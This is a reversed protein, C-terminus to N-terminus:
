DTCEILLVLKHVSRELISGRRSGVCVKVTRVLGDSGTSVEVVRALPWQSRPTNIDKVIVIDGIKMNRRPNHWKQRLSIQNLYETKWRSWFQELLYQVRRWRRKLYLDSQEFNGPPPYPINAKATLIHNPTLPEIATPNDIESVSLPRSNVIAMVEYFVTRLSSDDLNKPCDMLIANLIDRVTRIQREWVGGTHSADPPNMQFETLREALYNSVKDKNVASKFENMAGVFNSGHDCRIQKVFGRISIFCRLGNIFADTSLDDLMEIHIARSCMCTFILGYRKLEVRRQKVTFPGFVDMGCYYFPPSPEVRSNPLNAMKQCESPRRLKRCTVCKRIFNGVLKSGGIIWYGLSRLKNMTFGRGQHKMESHAYSLILNTVHHNKPLIIPHKYQDSENANSLRGGIRLLGDKMFPDLSYLLHSKPLPLNALVLSRADGFIKIQLLEIIRFEAKRREEATPVHIGTEGNALRMLRAVVSVAKTWSSFRTLDIEFPVSTETHCSRVCKVEPDEPALETNCEDFSLTHQWLFSPGRLWSSDRLENVHLGRSAHDAPNAASEVYHWQAPESVDRISKVRNAVFVHFRRCENNIYALVVRSDTWFHESTVAIGLEKKLLVSMKASLVAANLELRPITLTRKPAVRAKGILFSCHVDAGSVIRLYSCQGCGSSSADSFHHIEICTCDLIPSPLLCRGISFLKLDPLCDIWKEWEEKIETPAVDDWNMGRQCMDQLIRKGIFTFPALFGLPDFISAVISLIVRRSSAVTDPVDVRFCFADEQTNWSVGLAHSMPLSDTKFNFDKMETARESPPISEIVDISNSIFKHLRLGGTSCLAQASRTLEIADNVSEVSTLGDDVYFDQLVFSSAKPYVDANLKALHRLAFNACGPSSAAGFLHVRMRFEVPETELDGDEWWLFRLFDRDDERVIFQHFMKEIDCMVAVPFRRFRTLVGVLGNILDPGTLLHQNLSSGKYTASCDFVVRVKGPKKPHYVGHHPIYWRHGESESHGVKEVDGRDFIESMFAKYHELYEVNQTLKRKLHELRKLAYSKNDPVVPREKFPLPMELHKDPRQVINEEMIKIFQMDNQSVKLDDASDNVFDSELIRLVKAPFCVPIEKVSIRHCVSRDCQVASSESGGVVSWGLSTKVAYPENCGGTLVELPALAKPCNYGILLGVDCSQLPPLVNKLSILHEWRDATERVPIHDRDVPIFSRSYAHNIVVHDSDASDFARVKLNSVKVSEIVTRSSTMTSLSLRAPVTNLNDHDQLQSLVDDLIFTTDSQTDLLAYTLIENSGNASLWVPVIMSTSATQGQHFRFTRLSTAVEFTDDDTSHRLRDDHLCTPHKKSCIECTHKRRCAKKYHGKTLCGFCLNNERCFEQRHDIPRIVFEECAHIRHDKKTCFSCFIVNPSATTKPTVKAVPESPRDGKHSSTAFVKAKHSPRSQEHSTGRKEDYLAYPSSIPHNAIRAEKVVYDVFRSFSPYDTKSDFAAAVERNWGRVVWEPLKLLLKRNEFCDNLISLSPVQLMADRCGQLFDAFDTLGVIDKSSIKPWRELRDRFAKQIVFPHGYRDELIEKAREYSSSSLNLYLGEIAKSAPFGVYKKLFFLREQPPVGKHEILVNFATKWEMYKLPDGNFVPPEPLSMRSLHVSEALAKALETMSSNQSNCCQAPRPNNELIEPSNRSFQKATDNAPIDHFFTSVTEATPKAKLHGQIEIKSQPKSARKSSRSSGTRVSYNDEETMFRAYADVKAQAVNVEKRAIVEKLENEQEELLRKQEAKLKELKMRAQKEEEIGALEAKKAELEAAAEMMKSSTRSCISHSPVQDSLSAVSADPKDCTKSSMPKCQMYDRMKETYVINRKSRRVNDVSPDVKGISHCSFSRRM